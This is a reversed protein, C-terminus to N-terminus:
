INLRLNDAHSMYGHRDSVHEPKAAMGVIFWSHSMQACFAFLDADERKGFIYSFQDGINTNRREGIRLEPLMSQMTEVVSRAKVDVFQAFYTRIINKQSLPKGMEKYYLATLLKRCFAEFSTRWRPDMKMIPVDAVLEGQRPAIGIEKLWNRKERLSHFGSPLMEPTNRSVGAVLKKMQDDDTIGRYDALLVLMAVAQEIKSLKANCASCAPFEFGEPGIRRFFCERSPVHDIPTAKAM